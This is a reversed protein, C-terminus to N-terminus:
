DKFKKNEEEKKAKWGEPARAAKKIVKPMSFEGWGHKKDLKRQLEPDM